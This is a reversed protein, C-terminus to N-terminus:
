RPTDLAGLESAYPRRETGDAIPGDVFWLGRGERLLTLEAGSELRVRFARPAAAREVVSGLVEVDLWTPPEVDLLSAAARIKAPRRRGDLLVEARFWDLPARPSLGAEILIRHEVELLVRESLVFTALPRPILVLSYSADLVRVVYGQKGTTLRVELLDAFHAAQRLDSLMLQMTAAAVRLDFTDVEGAFDVTEGEFDVIAGGRLYPMADLLDELLAAFPSADRHDLSRLSRRRAHRQSSKLSSTRTTV